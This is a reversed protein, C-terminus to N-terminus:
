ILLIIKFFYKLGKSINIILNVQTIIKFKYKTLITCRIVYIFICKYFM